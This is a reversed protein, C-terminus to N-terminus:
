QSTTATDGTAPGDSVNGTQDQNNPGGAPDSGSSDTSDTKEAVDAGQPGAQISDTDTKDGTPGIPDAVSATPATPNSVVPNQANISTANASAVIATGSVMGVLAMAGALVARSLKNKSM